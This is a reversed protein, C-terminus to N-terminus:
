RGSWMRFMSRSVSACSCIAMARLPRRAVTLDSAWSSRRGDWFDWASASPRVTRISSVSSVHARSRRATVASEVFMASVPGVCKRDSSTARVGMGDHGPALGKSPVGKAKEACRSGVSALASSWRTASGPKARHSTASGLRMNTDASRSCIPSRPGTYAHCKPAKVASRSSREDSVASPACAPSASSTSNREASM